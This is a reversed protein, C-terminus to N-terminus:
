ERTTIDPFKNKKGRKLLYKSIEDINCKEIITCIDVVNKKSKIVNKKKASVTSKNTLKINNKKAVIKNKSKSLDKQKNIIKKTKKRKKMEKKIDEIEGTNLIKINQNTENKNEIKVKRNQGSDNNLNLQVLDFNKKNDNGIIKVEISLNEEFYQEAETKNICVHDGCILVTKTSSCNYLFLSVFFLLFYKM